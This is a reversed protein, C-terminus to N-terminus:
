TAGNKGPIKKQESSIVTITLRTLGAQTISTVAEPSLGCLKLISPLNEGTTIQCLYQNHGGDAVVYMKSSAILSPTGHIMQAKPM